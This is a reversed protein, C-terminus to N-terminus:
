RMSLCTWTESGRKSSSIHWIKNIWAVIWTRSRLCYHGPLLLFRINAQSLQSNCEQSRLIDSIQLLFHLFQFVSYRQQRRLSKDLAGVSRIGLPFTIRPYQIYMTCTSAYFTFGHKSHGIVNIRHMNETIDPTTKGQYMYTMLSMVVLPKM